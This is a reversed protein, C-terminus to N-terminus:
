FKVYVTKPTTGIRVPSLGQKDNRQSIAVADGTVDVGISSLGEGQLKSLLLGHRHWRRTPVPM